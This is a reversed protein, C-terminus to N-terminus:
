REWVIDAGRMVAYCDVDYADDGATWTAKDADDLALAKAKEPTEAEVEVVAIQEVYQQLCVRYKPM